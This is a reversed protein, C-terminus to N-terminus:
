GREHKGRTKLVWAEFDDVKQGNHIYFWSGSSDVIVRTDHTPTCYPCAVRYNKNLMCDKQLCSNDGWRMGCKTCLHGQVIDQEYCLIKVM